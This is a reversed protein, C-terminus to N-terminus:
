RLLTIHGRTDYVKGSQTRAYLIYFYTGPSANSGANTRGDWDIRPATTEFVRLGWRDYIEITYEEIGSAFVHFVDNLGDGNPSFVNPIDLGELVNVFTYQVTDYCGYSNTTILTVTYQGSTTYVHVPNQVNSSDGDGFYWMWSTANISGDNFLVPDDTYTSDPAPTFAGVPAPLVTVTVNGNFITGCGDTVTCTYTATASPAVMIPGAGTGLGNSWTYTYSGTGGSANVFLAISDGACVSDGVSMTCVLPPSVVISISQQAVSCGNADTVNVSYTSDMGPSVYQSGNANGNSWSYNYPGTGGTVNATILTSDGICIATNGTVSVALAAPEPVNVGATTICGNADTVSVMYAGGGLGSASPGNGGVPLWSYTYPATGGSATISAAGDSGGNCSVGTISAPSATLATPQNITFTQISTCGNADTVTCTYAGACQNTVQQTTEGGPAWSYTFPATGGTVQATASGNCSANCTADVVTATIAIAPNQNITFTAMGTCGGADTITCTYTGAPLGTATAGNGGSPSWSYTYGPSGGSVNVTATGNSGGFCSVDTQNSQVSLTNPPTIVTVSGTTVCGGADTITCTYNGASLGTATAANGGSPSWSYSYGPTGGGATATASGNSVSCSATTSSMSVTLASPQTINFSSSTSCGNADSVTCTYTGAALGSASNLNGGSPSWSYTYGPTGGSPNVTASGNNGGSCSVNTQSQSASLASPQSINFTNTTSCGNVDTITCTYTGASLGSATPGNGGFPAWSYSYGPSGGSASVTASGNSGGSCSINSQSQSATVASPQSITVVTQTTNCGTADTITCTYTGATLGSATPGNGGSPSWSYSYPGTGGSPSVTASGNSGGGCSVNTQSSAVSLASSPTCTVCTTTQYYLGMVAFAYCDSSTSLGFNSTTQGAFVSTNTVDFNWFNQPYTLTTNNLTTSHNSAANPQLDSAIVFANANSSSACVNFGSMTQSLSGGTNNVMCGDNIVLSGRYTSSLDRYIIMLTAGDTESAGHSVNISYGGNGNISATVDARFTRTGTEAWCKAPGTGALTATYTATSSSPNTVTVTGTTASGSITWWVYAQLILSSCPIGSINLTAPLGVGPPSYRSTIMVSSQVYNLGCASNNYIQGLSGSGNQPAPASTATKLLNGTGTSDYYVLGNSQIVQATLSTIIFPFTM